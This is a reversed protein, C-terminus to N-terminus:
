PVPAKAVSDSAASDPAEPQSGAPRSGASLDEDLWVMAEGGARAGDALTVLYEIRRRANREPYIDIPRELTASTGPILEFTGPRQVYVITDADPVYTTVKTRLPERMVIVALARRGKGVTMSSTFDFRGELGASRLAERVAPTIQEDATGATEGPKWKVFVVTLQEDHLLRTRIPDYVTVVAVAFGLLIVLELVKGRKPWTTLGSVLGASAGAVWCALVPFSYARFWDGLVLSVALTFLFGFVGGVALGLVYRAANQIRLEQRGLVTAVLGIFIALPVTYTLFSKLDGLGLWDAAYLYAVAGATAALVTTVAGWLFRGLASGGERPSEEWGFTM